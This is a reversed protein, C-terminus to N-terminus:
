HPNEHGNGKNIDKRQSYFTSRMLAKMEEENWENTKLLNKMKEKKLQQSGNTESLPMFKVEWNVCGYTDQVATRKEPTVEETDCEDIDHVLKKIKPTSTRRANEVRIQFQKVLSGPGIVSEEIVDLLSKPYKAVM